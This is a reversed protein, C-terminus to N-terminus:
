ENYGDEHFFKTYKQYNVEFVVAWWEVHNPTVEVWIGDECGM